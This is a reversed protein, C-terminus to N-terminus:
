ETILQKSLSTILLFWIAWIMWWLLGAITSLPDVMATAMGSTVARFGLTLGSFAPFKLVRTCSAYFTRSTSSSGTSVPPTPAGLEERPFSTQSYKFHFLFFWDLV